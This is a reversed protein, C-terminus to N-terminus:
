EATYSNEEPKLHEKVYEDDNLKGLLDKISVAEETKLSKRPSKFPSDPTKPTLVSCYRTLFTFVEEVQLKQESANNDVDNM